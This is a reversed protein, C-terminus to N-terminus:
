TYNVEDMIDVTFVTGWYRLTDIDRAIIGTDTPLTSGEVLERRRVQVPAPPDGQLDTVVCDLRPHRAFAKAVTEILTECLALTTDNPTDINAETVAVALFLSYRRIVRYLGRGMSERRAPTHTIEVVIAPLAVNGFLRTDPYDKLATSIGAITGCFEVLRDQIETLTAM